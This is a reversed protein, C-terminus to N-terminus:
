NQFKGGIAGGNDVQLKAMEAAALKNSWHDTFSLYSDPYIGRGRSDIRSNEKIHSQDLLFIVCGSGGNRNMLVRAKQNQMDM